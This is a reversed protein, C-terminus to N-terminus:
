RRRVQDGDAIQAQYHTAGQQLQQRHDQPRWHGPHAPHTIQRMGQEAEAGQEQGPAQAVAQGPGQGPTRRGAGQTKQAKQQRDGQGQPPRLALRPGPPGQAGGRQGQEDGQQKAQHEAGEQQTQEGQRGQGAPDVDM